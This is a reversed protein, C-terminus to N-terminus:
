KLLRIIEASGNVKAYEYATRGLSDRLNKRAGNDLLVSVVDQHGNAAAIMLPSIDTVIVDEEKLPDPYRGSQNLDIYDNKKIFFLLLESEGMACAGWFPTAGFRNPNHVDAGQKVLFKSLERHELMLSIILPTDGTGGTKGEIDAGAELLLKMIPVSGNRAAFTVPKCQTNQPCVPDLEERVKEPDGLHRRVLEINDEYVASILDKEANSEGYSLVPVMFVAVVTIVILYKKM